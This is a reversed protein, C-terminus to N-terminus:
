PICVACCSPTTLVNCTGTDSTVFCPGPVNVVTGSTCFCSATSGSRAVCVTRVAPGSPGQIGQPGRPGPAGAPGPSGPPGQSPLTTQVTGDPFVFGGNLSQIRGNVTLLEQPTTTGIGVRSEQTLSMIENDGPNVGFSVRLRGLPRGGAPGNDIHFWAFGDPPFFTIAGASQFDFGTSIRGLVHLPTRPYEPHTIPDLLDIGVRGDAEIRMAEENSTRMILPAPNTTGLFQTSPDTITNGTLLWSVIPMQAFLSPEWALTGCLVLGLIVPVALLTRRKWGRLGSTVARSISIGIRIWWGLGTKVVCRWDKRGGKM